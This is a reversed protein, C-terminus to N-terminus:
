RGILDYIEKARALDAEDFAAASQRRQYRKPISGAGERQGTLLKALDIFDDLYDSYRRNLWHKISEYDIFMVRSCTKPGLSELLLNEGERLDEHLLECQQLYMQAKYTQNLIHFVLFPPMGEPYHADLIDRVSRDPSYVMTYWDPKVAMDWEIIQAIPHSPTNQSHRLQELQTVNMRAVKESRHTRIKLACRSAVDRPNTKSAALYIKGDKGEGIEKILM